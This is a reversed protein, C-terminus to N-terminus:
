GFIGPYSTAHKSQSASPGLTNDASTLGQNSLGGPIGTLLLTIGLKLPSNDALQPSIYSLTAEKYNEYLRADYIFYSIADLRRENATLVTTISNARTFILSGYDEGVQLAQRMGVAPSLINVVQAKLLGAMETTTGMQTLLFNSLPNISADKQNAADLAKVAVQNAEPLTLGKDILLPVIENVKALPIQSAILDAKVPDFELVALGKLLSEKFAQRKVVDSKVEEAKVREDAVTAAHQVRKAVDAGLTGQKELEATVFEDIEGQNFTLTNVNRAKALAREVIDDTVPNSLAFEKALESAFIVNRYLQQSFSALPDHETIGALLALIQPMLGPLGLARALENLAAKNLSAGLEGVISDILANKQAATLNALAPDNSVIKNVAESLEPSNSLTNVMSLNGLAIAAELAKKGNAETLVANDLIKQAPGASLLGANTAIRSYLAGIQDVLNSGVPVGNTNFFTEFAHKSLIASLFPSDANGPANTSGLNSAGLIGGTVSKGSVPNKLREDTVDVRFQNEKENDIRLAELISLRPILYDTILDRPVPVQITLSPPITLPTLLLAATGSNTTPIIPILSQSAPTTLAPTYGGANILTVKNGITTIIANLAAALANDQAVDAQVADRLANPGSVPSYVKPGTIPAINIPAAQTSLGLESNVLNMQNIITAANAISANWEDIAINISNFDAIRGAVYTNYTIRKDEFTTVATQFATKASDFTTQSTAFAPKSVNEFQNAAANFTTRASELQAQNITGGQYAALATNWTQLATNYTNQATEFTNLAAQYTTLAGEYTTRASNYATIAANFTAIAANDATLGGNSNVFHDLKNNINNAKEDLKLNKLQNSLSDYRYVLTIIEAMYDAQQLAFLMLEKRFAPDTMQDIFERLKQGINATSLAGYFEAISLQPNSADVPPAQLSAAISPSSIDVPKLLSPGTGFFPNPTPTVPPPSPPIPISM